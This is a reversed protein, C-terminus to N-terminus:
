GITSPLGSGGSSDTGGLPRGPVARAAGDRQPLALATASARAPTVIAPMLVRGATVAARAEDDPGGVLGVERGCRRAAPGRRPGRRAASCPLIGVVETGVPGRQASMASSPLPPATSTASSSPSTTPTQWSMTKRCRCAWPPRHASTSDTWTCGSWRLLPTPLASMRALGDGPGARETTVPHLQGGVHGAGVGVAEVLAEPEHGGVDAELQQELSAAGAASSWTLTITYDRLIVLLVVVASPSGLPPPPARGARGRRAGLLLPQDPGPEGPPHGLVQNAALGVCRCRRRRSGPRRARQRRGLQGVPRALVLHSHGLLRPDAAEALLAAAGAHADGVLRLRGEPTGHRPAGLAPAGADEERRGAHRDHGPQAHVVALGEVRQDVGAHRAAAALRQGPADAQHGLVLRLPDVLQAVGHRRDLLDAVLARPAAGARGSTGAHWCRAHCRCVEMLDLGVEALGVARERLGDGLDHRAVAGEMVRGEDLAREVDLGLLEDGEGDGDGALAVAADGGVAAVQGAEPGGRLLDGLHDADGDGHVAARARSPAAPAPPRGRTGSSKLRVAGLRILAGLLAGPTFSCDLHKIGNIFPSLLRDPEGVAEIDPLREFLHRFMVDIEQRALHAGLCFHPGAAGFGIHPNPDRRVDFTFPDAFVDEDRNASNYFMIVKDGEVLEVDGLVTDHAVTRRMWIVPSGWRVIEDVGTAAIGAPDAQWLARQEPYTTMALLGHSIANRTTENGAVVLLIFFAAVETDTLAEGDVNTNVLASTVDETPHERRYTALDTMLLNLQQAANMFAVM